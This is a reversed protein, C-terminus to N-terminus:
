AKRRREIARRTWGGLDFPCHRPDAQPLAASALRELLAEAHPRNSALEDFMATLGIWEDTKGAM